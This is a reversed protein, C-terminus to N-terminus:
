APYATLPRASEEGPPLMWVTLICPNRGDPTQVSCRVVYKAGWPGARATEAPKREPHDVLAMAMEEVREASFGFARFFASKPGGEEHDPNLLYDTIKAQPVRPQPVRTTM